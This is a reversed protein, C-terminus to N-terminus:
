SCVCCSVHCFFLAAFWLRRKVCFVALGVLAFQGSTCALLLTVCVFHCAKVPLMDEFMDVPAALETLVFVLVEASERNAFSVCFDILLFPEALHLFLVCYSRENVIIPFFLSYCFIYM